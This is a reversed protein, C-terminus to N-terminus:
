LDGVSADPTSQRALTMARLAFHADGIFLDRYFPGATRYKLFDLQHCITGTSGESAYQNYDFKPTVLNGQLTNEPVNYATLTQREASTLPCVICRPHVERGLVIIATHMARVYGSAISRTSRSRTAARHVAEIDDDDDDDDDDESDRKQTGKTNPLDRYLLHLIGVDYYDLLLGQASEVRRNAYMRNMRDLVLKRKSHSESDPSLSEWHVTQDGGLTHYAVYEPIVQAHLTYLIITHIECLEMALSDYESVELQEFRQSISAYHNTHFSTDPKSAAIRLESWTYYEKVHHKLSNPLTNYEVVVPWAALDTLTVTEYRQSLKVSREIELAADRMDSASQSTNCLSTLGATSDTRDDSPLGSKRRTM